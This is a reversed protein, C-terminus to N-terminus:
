GPGPDLTGAGGGGTPIAGFVGQAAGGINTGAWPSQARYSGYPNFQNVWTQRLSNQQGALNAFLQMMDNYGQMSQGWMGTRGQLAAQLAGLQGTAGQLGLGNAQMYAAISNQLNGSQTQSIQNMLNANGLSYQNQQGMGQNYQGMFGLQSNLLAQSMDTGLGMRTAELQGGQGGAGLVTGMRSTAANQIGPVQSLASTLRQTGQGTGGLALDGYQGFRTNQNGVGSQLLNAGINMQNQQLGQQDLMARNMATAVGQGVQRGVDKSDLNNIGSGSVVGAGRSIARRQAAEAQQTLSTVAENRALNMAQGFPLLAERNVLDLGRGVQAQNEPTRGGSQLGSLGTQIVQQLEPTLGGNQAIQLAIRSAASLDPTMGGTQLERLASDQVGQTYATQGRQGILNPGVDGLALQANNGRGQMFPDATDFLNQYQPTWGGGEYVRRALDEISSLNANRTGYGSILDQIEPSLYRSGAQDFLDGAQGGLSEWAQQLWPMQDIANRGMATSFDTGSEMIPGAIRFWEDRAEQDGQQARAYLMALMGQTWQQANQNQFGQFLQGGLNALPGLLALAATAM